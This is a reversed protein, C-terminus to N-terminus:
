GILYRVFNWEAKSHISALNGDYNKVCHKQAQTFNKTNNVLYICDQHNVPLGGNPCAEGIELFVFIM